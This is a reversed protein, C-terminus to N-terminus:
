EGVEGVPRTGSGIREVLSDGMDKRAKEVLQMLSKVIEPHQDLVNKEESIDTALDYLEMDMKNQDYKIPLGDDTGVRGNLSRYQHPLYLKWRGDGSLIGQLQNRHYYFYYAEHHPENNSMGLMLNSMDRGDITHEPLSAGTM